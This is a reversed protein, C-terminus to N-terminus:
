DSATTGIGDDGRRSLIGNHLIPDDFEDDELDLFGQLYRVAGTECSYESSGNKYYKPCIWPWPGRKYGTIRGAARVINGVREHTEWGEWPFGTTGIGIGSNSWHLHRRLTIESDNTNWTSTGPRFRWTQRRSWDIHSSFSSSPYISADERTYTIDFGTNDTLRVGPCLVQSEVEPGFWKGDRGPRRYYAGSGTPSATESLIIRGEQRNVGHIGAGVPFVLSGVVLVAMPLFAALILLFINSKLMTSLKQFMM